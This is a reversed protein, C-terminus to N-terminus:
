IIDTWEGARLAAIAAALSAIATTLLLSLKAMRTSHSTERLWALAALAALGMAGAGFLAALLEGQQEMPVFAMAGFLVMLLMSFQVLAAPAKMLWALWAHLRQLARWPGGGANSLAIQDIVDASLTSLHFFLQYLSSLVRLGGTGLRSLDAWYMEYVDVDRNDLRRRLSVRTSEYLAEKESLKLRGLLYDNLAIGLDQPNKAAAPADDPASRQVQYFGSPTGPTQRVTDAIRTETVSKQTASVTSSISGGPELKAVPVLVDRLEGQLYRPPGDNGHCLLRVIERVTQGPRQDAIGHVVMVAVRPIQSM